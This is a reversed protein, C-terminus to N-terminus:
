IINTVTTCLKLTQNVDMHNNGFNYKDSVMIVPYLNTEDLQIPTQKVNILHPEYYTKKGKFDKQMYYIKHGDNFDIVKPLRGEIYIYYDSEIVKNEYDKVKTEVEPLPFKCDIRRDIIVDSVNLINVEKTYKSDSLKNNFFKILEALYECRPKDIIGTRNFNKVLDTYEKGVNMIFEYQDEANNFQQVLEHKSNYRIRTGRKKYSNCLYEYKYYSSFILPRNSRLYGNTSYGYSVKKLNEFSRKMNGIFNGTVIYKEEENLNFGLSYYEGNIWQGRKYPAILFGMEKVDLQVSLNLKVLSNVMFKIPEYVNDHTTLKRRIFEECLNNMNEMLRNYLTLSKKGNEDKYVSLSLDKDEPKLANSVSKADRFNLGTFKFKFTRAFYSEGKNIEDTIPDICAPHINGFKDYFEPKVERSFELYARKIDLFRAKTILNGDGYDNKFGGLDSTFKLNSADMVSRKMYLSDTDSAYINQNGVKRIIENVLKRSYATVYGAIYTPKSVTPHDLTKSVMYQGNRKVEMHIGAKKCLSVPDYNLDKEANKCANYILKDNGKFHKKLYKLLGKKDFFYTESKIMEAFKGYMANLVIKMIYEKAQEPNDPHLSKYYNRRNYLFEVLNTFIKESSNFYVGHHLKVVEYGDMLMERLDVDNYTGTITQNSPYVLAGNQRVPHIAYRINPIKIDVKVIYHKQNMWDVDPTILIPKGTPFGALAMVSPYLSNMDLCILYDDYIGEKIVENIENLYRRTDSDYRVGPKLKSDWHSHFFITRGGYYMDRCLKIYTPDKPVYCRSLNYCYSHMIDWAVGPLGVFNTISLGIDLYMDEVKYILSQLSDVDYKLYTLWDKYGSRIDEAANVLECRHCGGKNIKLKNRAEEAAYQYVVINDMFTDHKCCSNKPTNVLINLNKPLAMIEDYGQKNLNITYWLQTKNVIDFAQKKVDTKFTKCAQDLSSLCFPLLDLLKINVNNVTITGSKITNGIKIMKGYKANELDTCFLSDFRSSNYAYANLDKINHQVCIKSVEDFFREMVNHANKIHTTRYTVLIPPGINERTKINSIQGRVGYVFLKFGDDNKNRRRIKIMDINTECDWTLIFEKPKKQIYKKLKSVEPNLPQTSSLKIKMDDVCFKTKDKIVFAHWSKDENDVYFLGIALKNNKDELDTYKKMSLEGDKVHVKYFAPRYCDSSNSPYINQDNFYKEDSKYLNIKKSICDNKCKKENDIVPCECPFCTVMLKNILKKHSLKYPSVGKTSLINKGRGQLELFKNMANIPCFNSRPIYVNDNEFEMIYKSKIKASAMLLARDTNMADSDPIVIEELGEDDDDDRVDIDDDLPTNEIEDLLWPMDMARVASFINNNVLALDLLENMQEQSMNGRGFFKECDEYWDETGRAM